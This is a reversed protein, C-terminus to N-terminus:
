LRVNIQQNCLCMTQQREPKHKDCESAQMLIIKKIRCEGNGVYNFAKVFTFMWKNIVSGGSFMHHKLHTKM